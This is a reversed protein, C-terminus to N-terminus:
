RKLHKQAIKDISKNLDSVTVEIAERARSAFAPRIFPEAPQKSSGYELLNATKRTTTPRGERDPYTKRLVRVLYREGKGDSPPKGRTVKISQELLGTSDDGATVAKLNAIVQRQIVRAGKRLAAKVPGGRNSVVEAPLQRLMSLTHELGDIKFDVNM